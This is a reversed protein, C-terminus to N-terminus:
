PVTLTRVLQVLPPPTQVPAALKLAVQAAPAPYCVLLFLLSTVAAILSTLLFVGFMGWSVRSVTSGASNAISSSVSLFVLPVIIMFILNLFLDGVPKIAAAFAPSLSGAVAGAVISGIMILSLRYNRLARM